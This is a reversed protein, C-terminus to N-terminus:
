RSEHTVENGTKPKATEKQAAERKMLYAELSKLKAELYEMLDRKVDQQIDPPLARFTPSSAFDPRAEIRKAWGLAVCRPNPDHMWDKGCRAQARGLGGGLAVALALGRIMKSIM